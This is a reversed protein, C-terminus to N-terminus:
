PSLFFLCALSEVWGEANILYISTTCLHPFLFVSSLLSSATIHRGLPLPRRRGCNQGAATKCRRHPAGHTNSQTHTFQWPGASEKGGSHSHRSSSHSHLASAVPSEREAGGHQVYAPDMVMLSWSLYLEGKRTRTVINEEDGCVCQCLLHRGNGIRRPGGSPRQHLHWARRKREQEKRGAPVVKSQLLALRISSTRTRSSNSDMRGRIRRSVPYILQRLSQRSCAQGPWTSCTAAAATTTWRGGVWCGKASKSTAVRGGVLRGFSPFVHSVHVVVGGPGM